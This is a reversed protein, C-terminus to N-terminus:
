FGDEDPRQQPRGFLKKWAWLKLPAIVAVAIVGLIIWLTTSM